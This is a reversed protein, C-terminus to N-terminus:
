RRATAHTSARRRAIRAISQRRVRAAIDDRALPDVRPSSPPIPTHSAIRARALSVGSASAADVVPPARAVYPANIACAFASASANLSTTDFPVRTPTTAVAPGSYQAAAYAVHVRPPTKTGIALECESSSAAYTICCEPIDTTSTGGALSPVSSESVYSLYARKISRDFKDTSM